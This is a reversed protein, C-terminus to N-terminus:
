TQLFFPSAQLGFFVMGVVFCSSPLIMSHPHPCIVFPALNPGLENDCTNFYPYLKETFTCGIFSYIHARAEVNYFSVLGGGYDVFVGVKQPKERLSLPVPPSTYAEYIDEGRMYVTWLGDFPSMNIDHKRNISERAVGLLWEAKGKVQVEYYFRGSSFSNDPLKQWTGGYRVKKRDRSLILLPHATDPDLTVHASWQQITKLEVDCLRKVARELEEQLTQELESVARRLGGLCMDSHVSVESWDKTHKPTCLSPFTQLLLLHDETHSHQELETSRRQLETMEQELQKILGDARNEAAKQKEEVVEIFEAQSRQISDMLDSFVQLSDAIEREADRKSFEVSHKVEWVKELREQIMQRIQREMKGLQVKREGCEEELPVAHHTKHDTEICFQCVCTQDTRCFLELLRDHKNCMRDELNEVPDILKHRKLGTVRQHPQLHTECFSTLCELCSKCFNHGCPTSVPETFVDLCISCQFQEESLLRSSSAM